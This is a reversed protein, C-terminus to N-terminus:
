HLPKKLKDYVWDIEKSDVPGSIPVTRSVLQDMGDFTGVVRDNVVLLLKKNPLQSALKKILAFGKKTLQLNVFKSQRALDYEIESVSEFETDKIIPEKTVCYKRKEDFAYIVYPCNRRDEIAFYFGTPQQSFCDTFSVWSIGIAFIIKISTM